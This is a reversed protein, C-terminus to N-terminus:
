KLYIVAERTDKDLIITRGKLRSKGDAKVRKIKKLPLKIEYGGAPPTKSNISLKLHGEKVRSELKFSVKGFYTPANKVEIVEGDKLWEEPISSLLLMKDGKERILMNRLHLVFHAASWTHPLDGVIGEKIERLGDKNIRTPMAEMWGGPCSQHTVCWLMSKYAAEEMDLYILPHSIKANYGWFLNEYEVFWGGDYGSFSGAKKWYHKYSKKFLSKPVPIGLSEGPFLAPRHAWAMQAEGLIRHDLGTKRMKKPWYDAFAPM